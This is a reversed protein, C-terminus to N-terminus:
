LRAKYSFLVPASKGALEQYVGNGYLHFQDLIVHGTMLCVLFQLRYAPWLRVVRVHDVKAYLTIFAACIPKSRSGFNQSIQDGPAVSKGGKYPHATKGEELRLNWGGSGKEVSKWLRILGSFV